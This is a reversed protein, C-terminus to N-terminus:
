TRTAHCGASRPTARISRTSGAPIARRLYEVPRGGVRRVDPTAGVVAIARPSLLPTLDPLAVGADGGAAGGASDWRDSDSRGADRVPLSLHDADAGGARVAGGGHGSHHRYRGPPHLRRVEGGTPRAGALRAALLRLDHAPLHPRAGADGPGAHQGLTPRRVNSRPPDQ